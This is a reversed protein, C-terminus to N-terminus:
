PVRVTVSIAVQVRSTAMPAADSVDAGSFLPARKAQTTTARASTM